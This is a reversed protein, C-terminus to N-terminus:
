EFHSPNFGARRQSEALSRVGRDGFSPPRYPDEMIQQMRRNTGRYRQSNSEQQREIRQDISSSDMDWGRDSNDHSSGVGKLSFSTPLEVCGIQTMTAALVTIVTGIALLRALLIKTNSRRTTSQIRM